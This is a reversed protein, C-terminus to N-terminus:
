VHAYYRLLDLAVMRTAVDSPLLDIVPKCNFYILPFRHVDVFPVISHRRLPQLTAFM